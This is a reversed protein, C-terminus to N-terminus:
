EKKMVDISLIDIFLQNWQGSPIRFDFIPLTARPCGLDIVSLNGLIYHPQGCCGDTSLNWQKKELKEIAM